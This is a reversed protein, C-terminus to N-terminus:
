GERIIFVSQWGSSTTQIGGLLWIVKNQDHATLLATRAPVGIRTTLQPDALENGPPTVDRIAYGDVRGLKLFFVADHNARTFVLTPESHARSLPFVNYGNRELVSAVLQKLNYDSPSANYHYWETPFYNPAFDLRRLAGTADPPTLALWGTNTTRAIVPLLLLPDALERRPIRASSADAWNRFTQKLVMLGSANIINSHDAQNFVSRAVDNLSADAFDRFTEAVYGTLSKEFPLPNDLVEWQGNKKVAWLPQLSPDDHLMQEFAEYRSPSFRPHELFAVETSQLSGQPVIRYHLGNIELSEASQPKTSSGWNRWLASSLDLPSSPQALLDSLLPNAQALNSAGEQPSPNPDGAVDANKRRWYATDAIRELIPGSAILENASSAQYEGDERRRVLTVGENEIEAYMTNRQGYRLGDALPAPLRPVLASPLFNIESTAGVPDIVLPGPTSIDVVMIQPEQPINDSGREPQRNGPLGATPESTGSGPLNRWPTNGDEPSPNRGPLGTEPPNPRVVKKPPKM